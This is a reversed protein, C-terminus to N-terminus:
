RSTKFLAENLIVLPLGGSRPTDGSDLPDSGMEQEHQDTYGDNDDDTDANNGVGDGDTDLKETADLPFADVSDSVGDGDDDTDRNNGIGDGDKDLSERADLPFADVSDAVGDGDDDTDANNGIGDGDTDISETADLPFADSTDNVGDNDDDDDDNNGVGDNDTDLSESEDFPFADSGDAIGDGDDDDDCVDGIGDGDFDAQGSNANNVCNDDNDAVGDSDSDDSTLVITSWVYLESEGSDNVSKVAIWYQTNLSLDTITASTTVVNGLFRYNDTASTTSLYVNYSRAYAGQGWVADVYGIGAQTAGGRLALSLPASPLPTQPQYLPQDDPATAFFTCQDLQSLTVRPTKSPNTSLYAFAVQNRYILPPQSAFQNNVSLYSYLSGYLGTSSRVSRSNFENGYTGFNNNISDQSFPNGIFGLYTGDPSILYAGDYDACTAARTTLPTTLCIIFSFALLCRKIFQEPM